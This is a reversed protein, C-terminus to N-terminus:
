VARSNSLFSAVADDGAKKRIGDLHKAYAEALADRGTAHSVGPIKLHDVLIPALSKTAGVTKGNPLPLHDHSTTTHSPLATAFGNASM